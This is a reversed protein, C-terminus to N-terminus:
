STDIDVHAAVVAGDDHDNQDAHPPTPPNEPNEPRQESITDFDLLM